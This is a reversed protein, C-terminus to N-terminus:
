KFKATYGLSKIALTIVSQANEMGLDLIGLSVAKEYEPERCSYLYELVERPKLPNCINNRDEYTDMDIAVENSLVTVEPLHIMVTATTPDIWLVDIDDLDCGVKIVGSYDFAFWHDTAWVDHGMLQPVNTCDVHNTYRYEYFALESLPALQEYITSETLVSTTNFGFFEPLRPLQTYLIFAAIAVALFSGAVHCCGYAMMTLLKWIGGAIAKLVKVLTDAIRHEM